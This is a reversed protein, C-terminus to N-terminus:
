LAERFLSKKRKSNSLSVFFNTVSFYSLRKKPHRGKGIIDVDTSGWRINQMSVAPDVTINNDRVM